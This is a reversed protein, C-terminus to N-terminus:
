VINYTHLITKNKIGHIILDSMEKFFFTDHNNFRVNRSFQIM